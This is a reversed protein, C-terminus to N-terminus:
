AIEEKILMIKFIGAMDLIRKVEKNIYGKIIKYIAFTIYSIILIAVFILFLIMFTELGKIHDSHEHTILIANLSNINVKLSELKKQLDKVQHFMQVKSSSLSERGMGHPDIFTIYQKGDKIIWM